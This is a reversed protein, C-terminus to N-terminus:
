ISNATAIQVGLTQDLRELHTNIYIHDAKEWYETWFLYIFNTPCQQFHERLRALWVFSTDTPDVILNNTRRVDYRANKRSQKPSICVTTTQKEDYIISVPLDINAVEEIRVFCLSM